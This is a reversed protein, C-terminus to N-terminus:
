PNSTSTAFGDIAWSRTASNAARKSGSRMSATRAAANCWDIVAAHSATSRRSSSRM